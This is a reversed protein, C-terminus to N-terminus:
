GTPEAAERPAICGDEELSLGAPVSGQSGESGQGCRGAPSGLLPQPPLLWGRSGRQLCCFSCLFSGSALCCLLSSRGPEQPSGATGPCPPVAQAGKGVVEACVTLVCREWGPQVTLLFCCGHCLLLHTCCSHLWLRQRHEAETIEAVCFAFIM